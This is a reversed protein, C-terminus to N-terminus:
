DENEDEVELLMRAFQAAPLSTSAEFELLRRTEAKM